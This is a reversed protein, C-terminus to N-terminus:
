LKGIIAHVWLALVITATEFFYETNLLCGAMLLLTIIMLYELLNKSM